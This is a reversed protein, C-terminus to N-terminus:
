QISPPVHSWFKSRRSLSEDWPAMSSCVVARPANRATAALKAINLESLAAQLAKDVASDATEFVSQTMDFERFMEFSEGSFKDGGCFFDKVAGWVIKLEATSFCDNIATQLAKDAKLYIKVVGRPSFGGNELKDFIGSGTRGLYSKSEEYLNSPRLHYM